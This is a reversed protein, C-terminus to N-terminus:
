VLRWRLEGNRDRECRVTRGDATTGTAGPKDCRDKEVVPEPADEEPAPSGPPLLSIDSPMTAPVPQPPTPPPPTTATPSPSIARTASNRVAASAPPSTPRETRAPGASGPKPPDDREDVPPVSPAPMVVPPGALQPAAAGGGPAAGGQDFTVFGIIGCLLAQGTVLAVAVMVTRRVSTVRVGPMTM